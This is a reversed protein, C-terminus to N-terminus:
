PMVVAVVLTAIAIRRTSKARQNEKIQVQHLSEMSTAM